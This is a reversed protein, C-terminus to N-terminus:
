REAVIAAIEPAPGERPTAALRAMGVVLLVSDLMTMSRPSEADTHSTSLQWVVGDATDEATGASASQM